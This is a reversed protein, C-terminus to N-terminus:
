VRLAGKTADSAATGVLRNGFTGNGLRDKSLITARRQPYDSANRKVLTNFYEALVLGDERISTESLEDHEYCFDILQEIWEMSHDYDALDYSRRIEAVSTRVGMEFAALTRQPQLDMGFIGQAATFSDEYNGMIFHAWCVSSIADYSDRDERAAKQLLTLGRPASYGSSVFWNGLFLNLSASNPEYELAREFAHAADQQSGQMTHILGTIRWSEHFGPSLQQSESCLRLADDFRGESALNLADRLIKAVPYDGAGRVAIQHPNSEYNGGINSFDKGLENLADRKAIIEKSADPDAGHHQNLYNRAFDSLGYLTDLSSSNSTNTM